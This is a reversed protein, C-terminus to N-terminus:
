KNEVRSNWQQELRRLRAELAANEADRRKLEDMLKQNLAQIAALAVGSEDVTGISKDDIGLNFAAKFDQATPGLHRVTANENTYRWERVPLATLQNLVKQADVETFDTKRNRDCANAWVGGDTLSAGNWTAITVNALNDGIYFWRSGGGDARQTHYDVSFGHQGFIAFQNSTVGLNPESFSSWVFDGDGGAVAGFGAALSHDGRAITGFGLATSENGSATTYYGLATSGIRSASSGIGMATNFSGTTTCSYGMATSGFGGANCGQGLATSLDGSATSTQGLATAGGGTAVCGAGIATSGIGSALSAVGMVTAYRAGATNLRGGVVTAFNGTVRNSEGGFVTAGFLGNSITNGVGGGGIINLAPVNFYTDFASEFRLAPSGNVHFELPLNDTTGLFAGNTPDAGANGGLKWFGESTLGNLSYANVSSLGSGDGSFVGGFQNNVNEMLVQNTYSGSLGAGSITGTLSGAIIAYPVPTLQQRPTLTNFANAGNTSAAIELWEGAGTFANGFDVSTTFLGNSVTVAPNTVPGAVPNGGSGANFLAFTLDYSGNAWDGQDNLRGQYTFATGQAFAANLTIFLGLIGTCFLALLKHNMEPKARLGPQGFFM